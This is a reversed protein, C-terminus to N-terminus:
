IMGAKSIVRSDSHNVKPNTPHDEASLMKCELSHVVVVSQSHVRLRNPDRVVMILLDEAL